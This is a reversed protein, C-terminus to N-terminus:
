NGSNSYTRLFLQVDAVTAAFRDLGEQEDNLLTYAPIVMKWQGNWVSRGILRSNTFEAPVRSYFVTPDDVPRFAQHKRLIWPRESLTGNANFFQTENFDNAGLNFPLPLAQDDVMWSRVTNSDGLPPALMFDSGCPILYVYPTASLAGPAGSSPAGNPNGTAFSDMGVYGPLVVGVSYIKTAFNTPTYAHDGAALELGFFNRGHEITSSFPIIIGPVPSGDPKSINRCHTVVDEDALVNAVMHQELTQRWAADDSTITPDNMLRYLETRFSFLTGNQDPNNIGLRGEAVSFDANLQAMSGALGGDGITSTTLQPVGGTLDGLSRSAVIDNFVEEGQATGLLGTEYDYSKAALYTYRSALDFLSRYQELAENRFLRFSVDRTRYGQIISAARQRYIERDALVRNAQGLVNAVNQVARQHEIALQMFENSHSTFDRYATSFEYAFQMEEQSFGLKELEIELDKEVTLVGISTAGAAAGSAIALGKLIKSALDGTVKAAGRAGSTADTALGVSRPFFEALTDGLDDAADSAFDLSTEATELALKVSELAIVATRADTMEDIHQEHKSVLDNFVLIMQRLNGNEKQYNVSAEKLALWSMQADLLADQMAGTEPRSGLGGPKWVDNYQVFSSPQVTYTGTSVATGEDLGNVIDSIRNGTFADFSNAEQITVTFTESTDVLDSPRDVIFYRFFDAGEYGQEYIKGPGVDGSYPRGFLAILEDEFADEEEFIANNLEDLTVQQTRLLGTMVAAQNFAGAANNLSVLARDYVQEFHSHGAKMDAPSIDFAIAGPSLGLPNLRANANDITTQFGAAYTPLEKVEPVTT